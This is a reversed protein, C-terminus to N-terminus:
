MKDYYNRETILICQKVLLYWNNKRQKKVNNNGMKILNSIDIKDCNACTYPLLAVNSERSASDYFDFHPILDHNSFIAGEYGLSLPKTIGFSTIVYDSYFGANKNNDIMNWAQAVDEIIGMNSGCYKRIPKVNHIIGYQHTVIIYAIKETKM